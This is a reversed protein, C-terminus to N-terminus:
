FHKFNYQLIYKFINRRKGRTQPCAGELFKQFSAIQHTEHTYKAYIKNLFNYFYQIKKHIFIISLINCYKPLFKTHSFALKLIYGSEFFGSGGGSLFKAGIGGQFIEM